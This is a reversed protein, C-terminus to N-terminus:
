PYYYPDTVQSYILWAFLVFGSILFIVLVPMNVNEKGLEWDRNNLYNFSSIVVFLLFLIGLLNLMM